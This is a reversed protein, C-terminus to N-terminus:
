AAGVLGVLVRLELSGADVGLLRAFRARVFEEGEDIGALMASHVSLVTFPQRLRRRPTVLQRDPLSGLGTIGRPEVDASPARRRPGARGAPHYEDHLVLHEKTGFHRHVTSASVDVAEAIREITVLDHVHADFLELVVYRVHQMLERRRRARLGQEAGLRTGTRIAPREAM